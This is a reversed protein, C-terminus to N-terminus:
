TKSSKEIEGFGTQTDCRRSSVFANLLRILIPFNDYLTREARVISDFRFIERRADYFDDNLSNIDGLLPM